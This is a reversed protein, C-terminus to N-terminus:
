NLAKVCGMSNMIRVAAIVPLLPSISVANDPGLMSNERGWWGAVFVAMGKGPIMHATQGGRSKDRVMKLQESLRQKRNSSHKFYDQETCDGVICGSASEFSAEQEKSFAKGHQWPEQAM